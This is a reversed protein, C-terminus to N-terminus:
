FKFKKLYKGLSKCYNWADSYTKGQNVYLYCSSGFITWGPPCYVCKSAYTSWFWGSTAPCLCQGSRCTLGVGQTCM